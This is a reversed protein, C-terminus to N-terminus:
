NATNFDLVRLYFPDRIAGPDADVPGPFLRTMEGVLEADVVCTGRVDKEEKKPQVWLRYVPVLQSTLARFAGVFGVVDNSPCDKHWKPVFQDLQRLMAMDGLDLSTIIANAKVGSKQLQEFADALLVWVDKAGSTNIEPLSDMLARFGRSDEATAMGRGYQEGFGVFLFSRRNPRVTSIITDGSRVIRRARGPAEDLSM